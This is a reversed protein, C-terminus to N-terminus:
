FHVRLSIWDRNSPKIDDVHYSREVRWGRKLIWFVCWSGAIGALTNGSKRSIALAYKSSSLARSVHLPRFDGVSGADMRRYVNLWGIPGLVQEAQRPLLLHFILSKSSGKAATDPDIKGIIPLQVILRLFSLIAQDASSRVSLRHSFADPREVTGHQLKHATLPPITNGESIADLALATLPRM